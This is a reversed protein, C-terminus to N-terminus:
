NPDVVRAQDFSDWNTLKVSWFKLDSEICNIRPAAFERHIIRPRRCSVHLPVKAAFRLTEDAIGAVLTEVHIPVVVNPATVGPFM